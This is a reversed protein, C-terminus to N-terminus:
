RPEAGDAPIAPPGAADRREAVGTRGLRVAVLALLGAFLVSALGADLGLSVKSAAFGSAVGSLGVVTAVRLDTTGSRANRFTGMIATPVIAVLSTGKATVLPVGFAVALVPVILVGGGVGLLGALVGSAVGTLVWLVVVLASTAARGDGDPTQVVMRVATVVLVAAFALQLTPVSVTRLWRTGVVAGAVGGASIAAGVTWDVEGGTAYGVVGALAIPAIATLSTAHARRQDFALLAVLAPVIVVGGGVGFLGSTVGALVGVAVARATRARGTV